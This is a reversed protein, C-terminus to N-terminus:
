LSFIDRTVSLRLCWVKNYFSAPLNEDRDKSMTLSIHCLLLRSALAATDLHRSSSEARHNDRFDVAPLSVVLFRFERADGCVM